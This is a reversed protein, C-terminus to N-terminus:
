FLNIVVKMMRAAHRRRQGDASCAGTPQSTPCLNIQCSIREVPCPCRRLPQPRRVCRLKGSPLARLRATQHTPIANPKTEEAISIARTKYHHAMLRDPEQGFIHTRETAM